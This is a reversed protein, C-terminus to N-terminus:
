KKKLCEDLKSLDVMETKEFDQRHKPKAEQHSIGVEQQLQNLESLYDLDDGFEQLIRSYVKASRDADRLELVKIYLERFKKRAQDIQRDELLVECWIEMLEASEKAPAPAADIRRLAKKFERKGFYIRCLDLLMPFNDPRHYLIKEYVEILGDRDKKQILLEAAREYEQMSEDTKGTAQMLEALRIRGTTNNPNIEVIKKRIEMAEQSSGKSDYFGAVIYYQNVADDNLGIERYLDGLKENIEISSPNLKLISKYVAIAKLHFKEGTYYDAVERYGKIAAATEKKKAYLDAIKLRIRMNAPDQTVVSKLEKIAKDLKGSKVYKEAQEIVKENSM